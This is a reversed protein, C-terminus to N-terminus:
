RTYSFIVIAIIALIIGIWNVKRLKENFIFLGTLVSLVVIGTNNVGFVVSSDFGEDVTSKYNLAKIFFYISGFNCAGLIAGWLLTKLNFLVLFRKKRFILTILGSFFAMSFLIASFFALQHDSVFEHQAYKVLSDVIGMGLFLIVPLYFTGKIVSFAGPKYITLLVAAFAVIIGTVKLTTLTDVPDYIISFVIPTVVSLKSAVTTVSIGAKQSSLGIIHFMIIFLIGILIAISTWNSQFAADLSVPISNLIFGLLAAFLYNYVIVPFNSIHYRDLLKFVVFIGTSSLISLLLNIM